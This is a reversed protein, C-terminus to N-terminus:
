APLSSLFFEHQRKLLDMLEDLPLDRTDFLEILEKGCRYYERGDPYKYRYGHTGDCSGCGYCGTGRYDYEEIAARVAEHFFESYRPSAFFKIRLIPKGKTSTFRLIQNKVKNHTFSYGIAKVKDKKAKYGLRIAHEALASFKSREEETLIAFYDDM